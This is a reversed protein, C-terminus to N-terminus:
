SGVENAFIGSQPGRYGRMVDAVNMRKKGPLQIETLALAGQGCGAILMQNEIRWEGPQLPAQYHEAKYVKLMTNNWVTWACPLPSLGHIFNRVNTASMTWDIGSTERFVKPALTIHQVDQPKPAATKDLLSTTTKVACTAAVEKLTDYLEGATTGDPIPVHLQDIISGADVTDNLIFSTVGSETEGAMIAHNIPAAGRFKPLLSAHVNFSAIRALSYVERPLIRFAIVCIVDPCLSELQAIFSPDKLKSPKIIHQIGLQEAASGVDSSQMALGRGRQKDPITVVATVGFTAHLAKLAPVAFDPTGMFVIRPTRQQESQM